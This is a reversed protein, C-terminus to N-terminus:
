GLLGALRFSNRAQAFSLSIVNPLAPTPEPECRAASYKKLTIALVFALWTGNRPPASDTCAATPLWISTTAEDKPDARLDLFALELAEGDGAMSADRMGSTGVKVSAPKGEHGFGPDATKGAFVGGAITSFSLAAM